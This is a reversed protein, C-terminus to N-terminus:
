KIYHAEGPCDFTNCPRTETDDDGCSAGDGSPSPCECKRKYIQDGGGCTESCEDWPEFACWKGDVLSPFYPVMIQMWQGCLVYSLM